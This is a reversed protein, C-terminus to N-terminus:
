KGKDLFRSIITSKGCQREGVVFLYSEIAADTQGETKKPRTNKILSWIDKSSQSDPQQKPLDQEMSIDSNSNKIKM